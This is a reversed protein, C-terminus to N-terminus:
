EGIAAYAHGGIQIFQQIDQTIDPKAERFDDFHFVLRRMRTQKGPQLIGGDVPFTVIAGRWGNGSDSNTLNPTGLISRLITLRFKIPGKIANKSTNDFTADLTITRTHRNFVVSKAHLAVDSTVDRFNRLAPDGNKTAEGQVKISASWLQAVGTRNDEWVPHFTGDAAAALGFMDQDEIGFHLDPGFINLLPGGGLARGTLMLVNKPYLRSPASSVVVSHTFSEGGDFSAAFRIWGGEPASGIGRSDHWAVGVVGNKNVAINCNSADPGKGPTPIDDVVVPQSWTKGEDDSHIIFVDAHGFRIDSWAVYARDNFPGHSTDAALFPFSEVGAFGRPPVVMNTVMVSDSFTLGGDTSRMVWVSSTYNGDLLKPLIQVDSLLTGDTLVTTNVGGLNPPEPFTPTLVYPSFAAGGDSSHYVAVANKYTAKVPYFQPMVQLYVRGQLKQSVNDINLFPRDSGALLQPESWTRGGDISRYVQAFQGNNWGIGAVVALGNNGLACTPDTFATGLIKPLWTSGGDFSTYTVLHPDTTMGNPEGGLWTCVILHKPDGPDAAAQVEGHFRLPNAASVHVNPGVSILPSASSLIGVLLLPLM